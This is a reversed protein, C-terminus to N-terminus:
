LAVELSFIRAPYFAPTRGQVEENDMTVCRVYLAAQLFQFPHVERNVGLHNYSGLFKGFPQARLVIVQDEGFVRVGGPPFRLSQFKQV